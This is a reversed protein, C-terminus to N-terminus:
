SRLAVGPVLLASMRAPNRVGRDQMWSEIERRRGAQEPGSRLHTLQLRTAAAHLVMENHEFGLAAKELLVRAQSAEGRVAAVSGNLLDAFPAVWDIEEKALRHAARAAFRVWRRKADPDANSDVAARIAARAWLERMEVRISGFRLMGGARLAVWADRMRQWAAVGSGVYLDIQTQALAGQYIPWTYTAPFQESLAHNAQERAGEPDDAALWKLNVYGLRGMLLCYQDGRDRAERLITDVRGMVDTFEGLLTRASVGIIQVNALEWAVGVCDDRCLIEARDALAIAERFRREFFAAVTRLVLSYAQINPAKTETALRESEVRLRAARKRKRNGGEWVLLLAEIALARARHGLDGVRDAFLAHRVQFYAARLSDSVGLGVGASWCVELRQRDLESARTELRWPVIQRLRLRGRHLILALIVGPNSQIYPLGVSALVERLVALGETHKGNQMYHEAAQRRLRLVEPDHPDGAALEGAAMEFEHAAEGGRGMSALTIGLREHVVWRPHAGTSLELARRYLRSAQHFAMAEAAREASTFAYVGARELDNALFIHDVLRQPDIDASSELANAIVLHIAERSEASLSSMVVERIREHYTDLAPQDGVMASRVFRGARLRACIGTVDAESGGIRHILAEELPAGSVAIIELMRHDREAMGAIRRAILGSVGVELEATAGHVLAGHAALDRALECALYPSGESEEAIETVRDEAATMGARAIVQRALERSDVPPLPGIELRRPAVPADIDLTREVFLRGVASEREDHDRFSLLLLIAPADPESRLARILAVSDLDGWQLDDIWLVVPQRSAIRGLLERLAAFARRRIEHPERGGPDGRLMSAIADIRAFVPFIQALAAIDPTLLSAVVDKSQHALFRALDDIAADMAKFCISERPHCRARLVVAGEASVAAIFQEVLATKGVGSPGQICSTVFGHSRTSEFAGRLAALESQRGVFPLEGSVSTWPKRASSSEREAARLRTLLQEGSPREAPAIRLLDMALADLDEPTDPAIARPRPPMKRTRDILAALPGEFPVSGTLAEYLVCGASNWDAAPSIESGLLQEPAMYAITGAISRAISDISVGSRLGGVLGFDLLVVRGGPEVLINAPKVDRHIKGDRHLAHLGAVLQHMSDRLEDYDIADENRRAHRVFDVGDILEMTFFCRAEDAVLDYLQVLNPHCLESLARFERKLRYVDDPSRSNLTKLAIMRELLVDRARYVAGAAGTGLLVLDRYRTSSGIPELSPASHTDRDM